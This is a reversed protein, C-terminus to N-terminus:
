ISYCYIILSTFLNKIYNYLFVLEIYEYVRLSHM